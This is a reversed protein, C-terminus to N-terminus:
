AHRLEKGCLGSKLSGPYSAMQFCQPFLLFHRYGANKEKELLTEVRDSVFKLKETVNIKDEAFAKLKSGQLIKNNPLSNFIKSKM